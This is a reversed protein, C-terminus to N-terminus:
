FYFLSVPDATQAKELQEMRCIWYGNSIKFAKVLLVFVITHLIVLDFWNYERTFINESTRLITWCPRVHGSGHGRYHIMIPSTSAFTILLNEACLWSRWLRMLQSWFLLCFCFMLSCWIHYVVKFFCYISHDFHSLNSIIPAKSLNIYMITYQFLFNNIIWGYKWEFM